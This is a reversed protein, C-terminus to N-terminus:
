RSLFLSRPGGSTVSCNADSRRLRGMARPTRAGSQMEDEAYPVSCISVWITGYTPRAAKVNTTGMVSAM